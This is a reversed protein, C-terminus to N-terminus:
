PAVEQVMAAPSVEGGAAAAHDSSWRILGADILETALKTASTGAAFATSKLKNGTVIPINLTVFKQKGFSDTTDNM